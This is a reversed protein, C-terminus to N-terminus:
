RRSAVALFTLVNLVSIIYMLDMAGSLMAVALFTLVNLVSIICLIWPVM